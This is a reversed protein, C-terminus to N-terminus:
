QRQDYATEGTPLQFNSSRCQVLQTIALQLDESPEPAAQADRFNRLCCPYAWLGDLGVDHPDLPFEIQAAHDLYSFSSCVMCDFGRPALRM